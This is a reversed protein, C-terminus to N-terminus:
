IVKWYFAYYNLHIIWMIEGKSFTNFFIFIPVANDKLKASSVSKRTWAIKQLILLICHCCSSVSSWHNRSINIDLKQKRIPDNSFSYVFWSINFLFLVVLTIKTLIKVCLEYLINSALSHVLILVSDMKCACSFIIIWLSNNKYIKINSIYKEFICLFCFM